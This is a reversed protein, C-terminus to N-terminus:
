IRRLELNWAINWSMLDPESKDAHNKVEEFIYRFRLVLTDKGFRNEEAVSISTYCIYKGWRCLFTTIIFNFIGEIYEKIYTLPAGLVHCISIQIGTICRYGLCILNGRRKYHFSLTCQIIFYWPLFLVICFLLFQHPSLLYAISHWSPWAHAEYLFTVTSSVGAPPLSTLWVRFSM